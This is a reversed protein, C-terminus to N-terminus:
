YSRNALGRSIYIPLIGFFLREVGGHYGIEFRTQDFGVNLILLLTFGFGMFVM